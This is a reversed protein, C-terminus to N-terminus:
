LVLAGKHNRGSGSMGGFHDNEMGSDKQVRELSRM